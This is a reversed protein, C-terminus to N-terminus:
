NGRGSGEEDLEKLYDFISLQKSELPPNLAENMSRRVCMPIRQTAKEIRAIQLTCIGLKDSAEAM